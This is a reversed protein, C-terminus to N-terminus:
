SASRIGVSAHSRTHTVCETAGHTEVTNTAINPDGAIWQHGPPRRTESGTLRLHALDDTAVAPFCLQLRDALAVLYPLHQDGGRIGPRQQGATAVSRSRSGHKARYTPWPVWEGLATL